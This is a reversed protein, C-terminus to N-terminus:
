TQKSGFWKTVAWTRPVEKFEVGIVFGEGEEYRTQKVRGYLLKDRSKPGTPVRILLHRGEHVMRRSRLGMGGRSIDAARCTWEAGPAGASDVECVRVEQHFPSREWQRQSAAANAAGKASPDRPTEGAETEDREDAGQPDM